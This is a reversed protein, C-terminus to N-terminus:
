NEEVVVFKSDADVLKDKGKVLKLNTLTTGIDMIKKWRAFNRMKPYLCSYYSKKNDASTFFVYFFYGGYRSRKKQIKTITAIM